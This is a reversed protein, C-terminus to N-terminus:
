GSMCVCEKLSEREREREGESTRDAAGISACDAFMSKGGSKKEERKEGRCIVEVLRKETESAREIRRVERPAILLVLLRKGESKKRREGGVM